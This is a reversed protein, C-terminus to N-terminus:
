LSGPEARPLDVPACPQWIKGELAYDPEHRLALLEDVSAAMVLGSVAADFADESSVALRRLASPMALAALYRARERQSSKTVAGTLLRPFIEVVLPLGPADFPWIRFGGAALRHLAGM